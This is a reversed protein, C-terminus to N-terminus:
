QECNPINNIKSVYFAVKTEKTLWVDLAKAPHKPAKKSLFYCKSDNIQYFKLQFAIDKDDSHIANIGMDHLKKSLVKALYMDYAFHKKPESLLYFLPRNFLLLSANLILFATTLSLLLNYKKRFPKLKIRYSDFFVKVVLVTGIIIFPAFDELNLRQRLSLLLSLLLPVFAVYWLMAKDKQRILLTYLAYFYYVFLFPSFIGAYVGLTDLFYNQPRGGVDFSYVKLALLLLALNIALLERNKSKIGYIFLAFYFLIFANDVVISLSLITYAIKPYGKDYLYIFLMSFLMVFSAQNFLMASAISGPLLSFLVAVFLAEEKKLYSKAIEYILFINVLHIAFSPLRIAFPTQGLLHTSAHAILSIFSTEDFFSRAEFISIGLTSLNFFLVLAYLAFLIFTLLKM